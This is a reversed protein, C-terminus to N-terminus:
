ADFLARHCQLSAQLCDLIAMDGQELVKKCRRQVDARCAKDGRDRDSEAFAIGPPFATPDFDSSM